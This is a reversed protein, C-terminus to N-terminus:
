NIVTLFASEAKSSLSKKKNWFLFLQNTSYKSLSIIPKAVWNTTGYARGVMIKALVFCLQIQLCLSLFNLERSMIKYRKNKWKISNYLDKINLASFCASIRVCVRKRWIVFPINSDNECCKSIITECNPKVYLSKCFNWQRYEFKQSNLNLSIRSFKM